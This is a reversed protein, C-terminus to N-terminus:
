PQSCALNASVPTSNSISEYTAEQFYKAREERTAKLLEQM